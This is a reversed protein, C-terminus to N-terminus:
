RPASGLERHAQSLWANCPEPCPLPGAGGHWAPTRVCRGCAAAVVASRQAATLADLERFMGLQRALFKQWETPAFTGAQGEAWAAVCGPYVTEVVAAVDTPAALPVTWGGPMKRATPLFRFDAGDAASGRVRRRLEAPTRLAEPEGPAEPGVVATPTLLLEGFALTGAAAVAEALRAAGVRPFGAWPGWAAQPRRPLGASWALEAVAEALQHDDAAPPLYLVARGQVEARWQGPPLGLERPVDQTVHSGCAVFVPIALLKRKTTAAYATPIEPADDLFVAATEGVVGEARLAAALAVTKARSGPHRPTGHGILAVAVEAPPGGFAALGEAVRQRVKREIFPHDALPATRVVRQGANRPRDLAMEAPLVSEAYFGRSAFVPVVFVDPAEVTGLVEAFSPPEKWFCPAVEDAVGQRRLVDALRQVAGATEPSVHSGHGALVLATMAQGRAATGPM